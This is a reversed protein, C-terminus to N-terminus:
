KPLVRILEGCAWEARDADAVLYANARTLAPVDGLRALPGADGGDRGPEPARAPLADTGGPPSLGRDAARVAHAAASGAPRGAAGAGRARLTRLDGHHLGSQGAPRFLVQRRAEGFVLPQGPQILVRDFYFKAGFGALVREVVDYKGASVGGSILLMDSALGRDLLASRHREVTDKAVAWFKPSAAPASSRCPSRIRTPIAFRFNPRRKASRSSRTAPPSSPWRRSPTSRSARRGGVAALM